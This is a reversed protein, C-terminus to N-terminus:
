GLEEIVYMRSGFDGLIRTSDQFEKGTFQPGLVLGYERLITGSVEAVFDETTNKGYSASKDGLFSSPIYEKRTSIRYMKGDEAIPLYLRDNRGTHVENLTQIELAITTKGLTTYWFRQNDSIRLKRFEGYQFVKRYKKYFAIQDKIANKEEESLRTVDLEYGLVGFAAINFRSDIRSVRLSQHGPSASVHAGMTSLPYGSLTGEQISVRDYLDTNDSAWTQPMFMLMALDYRNGGSACGEFLVDPFEKKLRGLIDYLGFIYRHLLEGIPHNEDSFSYLDSVARNMDWKIYGARTENLILAVSDHIYERVDERSLDLIFQHRCPLPRRKPHSIIWDPHARYLDSDMNVMEPEMWIGFQLGLAHIREAFADLGDPFRERNCYWDGLGKTDDTRNGFWGDDLVFLEVGLEKGSEALELLRKEDFDFYCGEWSNLLVPRTRFRWFPPIVFRNIFSHFLASAEDVGDPSYTMIAEPTVFSEGSELIWEFCYPNIGTIVRLTGFPSIEILERHNGSYVLNFGYAEGKGNQLYILPNHENGSTGLKSDIITIGPELRRKHEYRERAWAGDYSYLTWDDRPIDLQLSAAEKISLKGSTGNRIAASRVIVDSSPFVSYSLFVSIGLISDALEIELTECGDVSEISAPFSSAKGRYIRYGKYLLDMATRGNGADAIFSAERNDGRYPASYELLLNDPFIDDNEDDWYCLTGVPTMEVPLFCSIDPVSAIRRGYALHVLHGTKLVAMVYSTNETSVSFVLNKEAIM